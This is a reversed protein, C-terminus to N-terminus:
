FQDAILVKKTDCSYRVARSNEIVPGTFSVLQGIKRVIPQRDPTTLKGIMRSGNFTVDAPVVLGIEDGGGLDLLLCGSRYRLTGSMGELHPVQNNKGPAQRDFSVRQQGVASSRANNAQSGQQGEQPGDCGGAILLM